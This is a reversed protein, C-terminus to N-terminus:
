GIRTCNRGDDKAAYLGQDARSLLQQATEGSRYSAVGASFTLQFGPAVAGWDVGSLGSRIREAARQARKVEPDPEADTLIMLFEEGGYRGFYDTTRTLKQVSAAFLQLARDGAPHGLTDNLKKFHDLDFIAVSTTSGTRDTRAQEQALIRM